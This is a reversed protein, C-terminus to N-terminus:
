WTEATGIYINKFNSYEDLAMKHTERGFGSKKCGGFPVHAPVQGYTNVWVKGTGIAKAVRLARNINETWVGSALGYANDNALQIVEEESEFKIICLVPGFIEEQAIRMSNNVDVFVTPEIFYGKDFPPTMIRQGGIKISAGEAKGLEIYSLVKQMQDKSVMPGMETQNDWAVGVKTSAIIKCVRKVFEDYIEAQVFARTGASCVEGQNFLCLGRVAGEVAKDMNCDAFFINPSKGGLEM